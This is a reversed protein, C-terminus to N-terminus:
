AIGKYVPFRPIGDNTLEQYAFNIYSGVLPPNHREVDTLGTGVDFIHSGQFCCCLSGLRGEHKGEGPRHGVVVAQGKIEPKLKLLMHSRCQEYAATPHRLMIGEAGQSVLENYFDMMHARNHCSHHPLRLEHPISEFRKIFPEFTEEVRDFIRYIVDYWEVDNPTLKRVASVTRQFAGRAIWLEGDFRGPPIREKWWTPAHFPKQNRSWLAKGDWYARVGDLKESMLWGTPDVKDHYKHALMLNMDRITESKCTM